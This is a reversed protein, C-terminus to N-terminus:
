GAHVADHKALRLRKSKHIYRRWLLIIIVVIIVLPAFLMFFAPLVNRKEPLQIKAIAPVVRLLDRFTERDIYVIRCEEKEEDWYTFACPTDNSYCPLASPFLFDRFATWLGYNVNNPDLLFREHVWGKAFDLHDDPGRVISSTTFMVRRYNGTPSGEPETTTSKKIAASPIFLVDKEHRVFRDDIFTRPSEDTVLTAPLSNESLSECLEKYKEQDDQGRPRPIVIHVGGFKSQVSGVNALGFYGRFMTYLFHDTEETGVVEIVGRTLSDAKEKAYCSERKSGFSACWALTAILITAVTSRNIRGSLASWFISPLL